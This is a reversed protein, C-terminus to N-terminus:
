FTITAVEQLRHWNSLSPLQQSLRAHALDLHDFLLFASINSLRPFKAAAFTADITIGFGTGAGQGVDLALHVSHRKRAAASAVATAVPCTADLKVWESNPRVENM